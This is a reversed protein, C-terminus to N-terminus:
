DGGLGAVADEVSPRVELIDHLRVLRLVRMVPGDDCALVLRRSLSAAWRRATVLSSVGTSDLFTVSRLDVVVNGQTCVTEDFVSRFRVATAADLDGRATVLDYGQEARVVVDFGDDQEQAM